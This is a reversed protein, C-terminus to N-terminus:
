DSFVSDSIFIAKLHYVNRYNQPGWSQPLEAEHVVLVHIQHYQAQIFVLIVFLVVELQMQVM